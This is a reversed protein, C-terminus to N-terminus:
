DRQHNADGRGTGTMADLRQTHASNISAAFFAVHDALNDDHPAGDNPDAGPATANPEPRPRIKNLSKASFLSSSQTQTTANGLSFRINFPSAARAPEVMALNGTVAAGGRPGGWGDGVAAIVALPETAAAAAAADKEAEKGKEQRERRM